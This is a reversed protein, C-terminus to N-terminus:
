ESDSDTRWQQSTDTACERFPSADLPAVSDQQNARTSWWSGNWRKLKTDHLVGSYSGSCITRGRGSIKDPNAVTDLVPKFAESYCHGAIAPSPQGGIPLLVMAIAIGALVGIQLYLRRTPSQPQFGRLRTKMPTSAKRTTHSRELIKRDRIVRGRVTREHILYRTAFFIDLCLIPEHSAGFDNAVM